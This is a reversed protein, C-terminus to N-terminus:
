IIQGTKEIVLGRINRLFHKMLIFIQGNLKNSQFFFDHLISLSCDKVDVCKAGSEEGGVCVVGVHLFM